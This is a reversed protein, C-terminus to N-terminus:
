RGLLLFRRRGLLDEELGRALWRAAHALAIASNRPDLELMLRAGPKLLKYAQATLRRFHALGDEGSFLAQAPDARVEPSLWLKDAEPLYPPNSILLDAEGVRKQLEPNEILDSQFLSLELGLRQANHAAVELAEGSIDSASVLADPKEAKIALAIAGSGTGVDVVKPHSVPKLSALALEVLRETEPRPILVSPSVTLTLGYFFAVGLIHQLPERRARRSLFSLYATWQEPSLRRRRELMVQSRPLGLLHGLISVGDELPTDVGAAELTEQALAMAEAITVTTTSV